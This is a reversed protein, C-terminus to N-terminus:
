FLSVGSAKKVPERRRMQVNLSEAKCHLVAMGEDQTEDSPLAANM